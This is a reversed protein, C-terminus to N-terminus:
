VNGELSSRLVKVILVLCISMLFLAIVLLIGGILQDSWGEIDFLFEVDPDAPLLTTVNLM